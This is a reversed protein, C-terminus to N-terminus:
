GMFLVWGYFPVQNFNTLKYGFDREIALYKGVLFGGYDDM